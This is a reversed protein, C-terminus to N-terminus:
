GAVRQGLYAEQVAPDDLLDAAEGALVIRGNQVVYGRHAISLALTANQEVMFIAVGDRNITAITELVREVLVPALGMTPEDMCILRPRSMLARAMALMQQEGGSMTGALQRRREGLRPFLDCMRELDARVEARDRRLYSGMRLNEEVTMQPFLRRAEPVSAIGRHIREATSRRTLDAGDILVRGNRPALLGLIVKMTTSKGSANGGLLSVIEGAEVNLSLDALAQAAGYFADIGELELLPAPQARM